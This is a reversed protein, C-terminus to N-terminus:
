KLKKKRKTLFFAAVIGGACLMGMLCAVINTDDGTRVNKDNPMSKRDTPVESLLLDIMEIQQVYDEKPGVQKPEITVTIPDAVAYGQPARTEVLQYQDGTKLKLNKSDGAIVHPTGDSIWRALVIGKSDRLELEAGSLTAGGTDKKTIAIKVAPEKWLIEGNINEATGGGLNNYDQLIANGEEDTIFGIRIPEESVQSGSSARLERIEYKVGRLVNPFTLKGEQNTTAKAILTWEGDAVAAKPAVMQSEMVSSKSSGIRFMGMGSWAMKDRQKPLGNTERYLGYESDPLVMSEDDKSVKKVVITARPVDNIVNSEDMVAGDPMRTLGQYNGAKDIVAQYITNPAEVCGVPAKTEKMYYTDPPLNEFIVQGREDSVGTMATAPSGTVVPHTGGADYFLAFVAGKIPEVTDKSPVGLTSDACGEMVNKQKTLVITGRVYRDEMVLVDQGNKKEVKGESNTIIIQNDDQLTFRIPNATHYGSPTKTEVLMYAGSPLNKITGQNIGDSTWTRKPNLSEGNADKIELTAEALKGIHEGVEPDVSVKDLAFETLQNTIRVTVKDADITVNGQPTTGGGGTITLTGDSSVQMKIPNQLRQYGKVTREETLQYTEGVIFQGDLSYADKTSEWVVGQKTVDYDSLKDVDVFKGQLLFTAGVLPTTGDESTKIFRAKFPIDKVRLGWTTAEAVTSDSIKIVKGDVDVEFTFTKTLMKYGDPAKTEKVTYTQGSILQETLADKKNADTIHIETATITAFTGSVTFEAGKLIQNSNDTIDTKDIRVGIPKDSVTITNNAVATGGITIEGDNGMTFTVPAAIKYGEPAKTETLIYTTGGTLLGSLKWTSVDGDLTQIVKGSSKETITFTAGAIPVGKQNTKDVTIVNQQNQVASAGSLAQYALQTRDITFPYSTTLLVYGPAPVTEVLVYNGWDLNMANIRGSTDTVLPSGVCIDGDTKTKSNDMDQYLEFTVGPLPVMSGGVQVGVKDVSMSGLTRVNELGKATMHTDLISINEFHRNTTSATNYIELTQHDSDETTSFIVKFESEGCADYGKPPTTETLKYTTKEDLDVQIIGDNGSTINTLYSNWTTGSDKSKELQFVAGALPAHDTADLKQMKIHSLFKQNTMTCSVRKDAAPKTVDFGTADVVFQVPTTDLVHTTDTATELFYYNGIPLGGSKYHNTDNALDETKWVGDIGTQLNSGILIDENTGDVLDPVSGVQKYLSFVIGQLKQTPTDKEEKTIQVPRYVEIDRMCIKNPESGTAATWNSNTDSAKDATFAGSIVQLAGTATIRFVIPDATQYGVPTKTETLTYETDVKFGQITWPQLNSSGGLENYSWIPTTQNSEKIELELHNEATGDGHVPEKYQNLKTLVIKTKENTMTIALPQADNGVTIQMPAAPLQYGVPAKTELINYNGPLLKWPTTANQRYLYPVGDANNVNYVGGANNVNSLRYSGTVGDEQLSAIAVNGSQLTFQAGTLAPIVTDKDKKTLTLASRIRENSYIDTPEAGGKKVYEVQGTTGDAAVSFYATAEHGQNSENFAFPISIANSKFGPAPMTEKIVYNGYVLHISTGNKGYDGDNPVEFKGQANTTIQFLPTNPENEKYVSFVAGSVAAQKENDVKKLQIYGYRLKNEVQATTGSHMSVVPGNVSDYTYKVTTGKIVIYIDRVTHEIPDTFGADEILKYTGDPLDSVTYKGTTSTVTPQPEYQKYTTTDAPAIVVGWDGVSGGNAPSKGGDGLRYLHFLVQPVLGGDQNHKEFQITTLNLPNLVEGTAAGTGSTLNYTFASKDATLGTALEAKSISIDSLLTYGTPTSTEKLVYAGFPVDTFSIIGDTGTTKEAVKTGAKSTPASWLEFTVGSLPTKVNVANQNTYKTFTITGLVPTNEIITPTGLPTNSADVKDTITFKVQNPPVGAGGSTAESTVVVKYTKPTIDYGDVATETLSYGEAASIQVDQFTVVGQADATAVKDTITDGYLNKGSLTFKVGSLKDGQFVTGKNVDTGVQKTFTLNGSMLTNTKETIYDFTAFTDTAITPAIDKAAQVTFSMTNYPDQNPTTEVLQYDGYPVNNFTVVGNADTSATQTTVPYQDKVGNLGTYTLTFERGAMLAPTIQNDKKIIKISGIARQNEIKTAIPDLAHDKDGVEIAYTKEVTVDKVLVTINTVLPIHKYGTPVGTEAITYEGYPINTFTVLGDKDTAQSTGIRNLEPTAEVYTGKKYIGFEAGKVPINESTATQVHEYKKMRISGTVFEDVLIYPNGSAGDGTLKCDGAKKTLIYHYEGSVADKTVVVTMVANSAWPNKAINGGTTDETITYTGEEVAPFEVQGSANSITKWTEVRGSASDTRTMTFGVGELAKNTNGFDVDSPGMKVFRIKGSDKPTNKKVMTNGEYFQGNKKIVRVTVDKGDVSLIKDGAISTLNETFMFYSPTNPSPLVYGTPPTKETVEYVVDTKLNIFAVNGAGDATVRTRSTADATPYTGNREKYGILVFEAGGLSIQQDAANPDPDKSNESLKIIQLLPKKSQKAYKKLDFGKDYDSDGTIKDIVDGDIKTFTLTNSIANTFNSQLPTDFTLVMVKNKYDTGTPIEWKFGPNKESVVPIVSAKFESTKDVISGTPNGQADVSDYLSLKYSDEDVCLPEQLAEHVTIGSMDVMQRNMVVTWRILGENELYKGQKTIHDNKIKATGQAADAANVPTGYINGTLTAKNIMTVGNIKDANKGVFKDYRYTDDSLITTYHIAYQHRLAGAPFTFTVTNKLYKTVSDKTDTTAVYTVIDGNHFTITHANTDVIGTESKGDVDTRTVERFSGLTSGEPMTDTLVADTIPLINPNMVVNWGVGHTNYDYSTTITKDLLPNTINKNATITPSKTISGITATVIANNTINFNQETAFGSPNKIKTKFTFDYYEDPSIDGVTVTLKTKGSGDSTLEYTPITDPVGTKGVTGVVNQTSDVRNRKAYTLGKNETTTIDIFAQDTDVLEDTFSVNKMRVGYYNLKIGWTMEQTKPNYAIANKEAIEVNANVDKGIDVVDPITFGPGIGDYSINEWLMKVKNNIDKKGATAAAMYDELTGGNLNLNTHYKIQVKKNAYDNFPIILVAQQKKESGVTIEYTYCVPNKGNNTLTNLETVTLNEYPTTGVTATIGTLINTTNGERITIGEAFDYQHDSWCITDVLYANKLSALTTNVDITWVFRQGDVKDQKGEKKIFMTGMKTSVEETNALTKTTDKGFLSAHNKFTDSPMLIGGNMFAKFNTDNLRMSIKFDAVKLEKGVEQKPFKYTLTNGIVNYENAEQVSDTNLSLTVDPTGKLIVESVVMGEPIQDSFTTEDLYKQPNPSVADKVALHIEYPIVPADVKTPGTKTATYDADVKDGGDSPDVHATLELLKTEDNITVDQKGDGKLKNKDLELELSFGSSVRYRNYMKNDYTIVVKRTGPKDEVIKYNGISIGGDDILTGEKDFAPDKCGSFLDGIAYEYILPKIQPNKHAGDAHDKLYTDIRDSYEQDTELRTKVPFNDPDAAVIAELQSELYIDDLITEFGIGVILADNSMTNDYGNENCITTIKVERYGPAGNIPSTLTTTDTKGKLTVKTAKIGFIRRVASRLAGLFGKPEEKKEAIMANVDPIPTEGSEALVQSESPQNPGNIGQNADDIIEERSNELPAKPLRITAQLGNQLVTSVETTTDTQLGQPLITASVSLVGFINQGKIAQAAENLTVTIVNQSVTYTGIVSGSEQSTTGNALYSEKDCTRLELPQTTDELKWQEKSLAYTFTDGSQLPAEESIHLFQFGYDLTMSELISLNLGSLDYLLHESKVTMLEKGQEQYTIRQLSLALADTQNTWDVAERTPVVEVSDQTEQPPTEVPAEEEPMPSPTPKTVQETGIDAAYTMQSIPSQLVMSLVLVVAIMRGISWSNKKHKGTKKM